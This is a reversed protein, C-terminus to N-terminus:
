LLSAFEDTKCFHSAVYCLSLLGLIFELADVLLQCIKLLEFCYALEASPNRM